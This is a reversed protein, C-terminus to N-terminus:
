KYIETIIGDDIDIKMGLVGYKFMDELLDCRNIIELFEVSNYEIDKKKIKITINKKENTFIVELIKQKTYDM